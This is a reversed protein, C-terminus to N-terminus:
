DPVPLDLSVRIHWRGDPTREYWDVFPRVEVIVEGHFRCRAHQQGSVLASGEGLDIELDTLTVSLVEAPIECVARIFAERPMSEGGPSRLRFDPALLRDLAAADKRGIAEALETAATTIRAREDM